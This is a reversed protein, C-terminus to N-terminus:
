VGSLASVQLSYLRRKCHLLFGLNFMSFPILYIKLLFCLVSWYTCSIKLINMILFICILYVGPYPETGSSPTHKFFLLVPTHYLLQVVAQFLYTGDCFRQNLDQQEAKLGVEQRHVGQTCTITNATRYSDVM